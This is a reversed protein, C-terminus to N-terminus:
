ATKPAYLWPYRTLLPQRLDDLSAGDARRWTLWGNRGPRGCAHRTAACVTAHIRGDASQLAGSPLVTVTYSTGINRRRWTLTEGPRLVGADLLPALTGSPVGPSDATAQRQPGHPPATAPEPPWQDPPQLYIEGGAGELASYLKMVAAVAPRAQEPWSSALGEWAAVPVLDGCIMQRITVDTGPPSGPGGPCAVDLVVDGDALVWGPSDGDALGEFVTGPQDGCATVLLMARTGPGPRLALVDTFPESAPDDRGSSLADGAGPLRTGTGHAADETGQAGPAPAQHGPQRQVREDSTRSM